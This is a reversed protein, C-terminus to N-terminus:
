RKGRAGILFCDKQSARERVVDEAFTRCDPAGCAECDKGNIRMLLMDIEQLSEISLPENLTDFLGALKSPNIESM